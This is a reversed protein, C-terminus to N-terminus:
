ADLLLEAAGPAEASSSEVSYSGAAPVDVTGVKCRSHKLDQSSDSRYGGRDVTLAEGGDVPQLSVAFDDPEAIIPGDDEQSIFSTRPVQYWLAVEGAPLDLDAKHGVLVKGVSSPEKISSLMDVGSVVKLGKGLKGMLGM